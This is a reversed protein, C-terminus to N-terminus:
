STIGFAGKGFLSARDFHGCGHSMHRGNAVWQGLPYGRFENEAAFLHIHDPMVVYRGVTWEPANIWAEIILNHIEDCALIRRRRFTCATIHLIASLNGVSVTLQRAPHKRPESCM